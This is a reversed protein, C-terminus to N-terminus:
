GRGSDDARSGPGRILLSRVLAALAGLAAGIGIGVAVGGAVAAARTIVAHAWDPLDALSGGLRPERGDFAEAWLLQHAAALAVGYVGGLALATGMVSGHRLRVLVALWVAIPVLALLASVAPGGIALDHAVVRPIGLAALGALVRVPLGLSANRPPRDDADLTM